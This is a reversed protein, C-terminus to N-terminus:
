AEIRRSGVPQAWCEGLQEAPGPKAELEAKSDRPTGDTPSESARQFVLHLPRDRMARKTEKTTMDQVDREGIEVLEDGERIGQSEAWSGATVTAIIMAEPPFASPYLGLDQVAEPATCEFTEFDSEDDPSRSVTLSLPRERMARKMEKRDMAEVATGNIKILMDGAQIGMKAAWSGETVSAIEVPDPAFAAPMLGLEKIDEGAECEFIDMEESVGLTSEPAVDADERPAERAPHPGEGHAFGM